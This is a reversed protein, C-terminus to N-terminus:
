EHMVEPAITRLYEEPFSKRCPSASLGYPTRLFSGNVEKKEQGDLYKVLLYEFLRHWADTAAQAQQCSFRTLFLRADDPSMEAVAADVAPVLTNFYNEWATQQKRIDPLMADYKTYAWNAVQNFAWFASTASYILLDGNKEDMCWPVATMRCYLPVYLSTAADDLGFWFIGGIHDPMYGRMQAVFSWATQQTATPREYWYQVSDLKFGLSGYRLKSHFPGADTGQTIDLPTGEYQDRMFNKFDQASLKRDPKIYLPMRKESKGMVYDFYADMGANVRRFFSWVRAECIYLGSFDLPAYTDSFSFDGKKGSFWGKAKAFDVVDDAYLWNERDRFDIQTIRAQNAHASVCDDPIRTAVWLAGKNGVGKGVMEMIWVERPDAITFSEGESCYGYDRVLSTMCDIAERATRCRELAVYILSGYDMIGTTDVLEERGGFTTEAITLQYENMNGVVSFTHAVQPIEGLYRNTDWDYIQRMAGAPHDAAPQYRLFGYLSYSDAAYSVLTSGDVTASKGAMFNTCAEAYTWGLLCFVFLPCLKKKM